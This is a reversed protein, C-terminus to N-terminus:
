ILYALVLWAQNEPLQGFSTIEAADMAPGASRFQTRGGVERGLYRQVDDVLNCRDRRGDQHETTAFGQETGVNEPQRAIARVLAQAHCQGRIASQNRLVDRLFDDVAAYLTNGDTQVARVRKSVICEAANRTCKIGGNGTEEVQLIQTHRYLDICRDGPVVSM